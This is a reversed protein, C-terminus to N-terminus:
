AVTAHGGRTPSNKAQLDTASRCDTQYLVEAMASLFSALLRVKSRKERGLPVLYAGNIRNTPYAGCAFTAGQDRITQRSLRKVVQEPRSVELLFIKAPTEWTKPLTGILVFSCAPTFDFRLATFSKM